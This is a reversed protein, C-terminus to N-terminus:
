PTDETLIIKWNCTVTLPTGTGDWRMGDRPPFGPIWVIGDADTLIPVSSRLDAPIRRDSFLTKVRRTMGSFRYLDGNKRARIQLADKMKDFNLSVSISKKYINEEDEGASEPNEGSDGGQSVGPRFVVVCLENEFRDGDSPYCFPPFEEPEKPVGVTVASPGIRCEVGGPLSIRRIGEEKALALVTNIHGEEPVLGGADAALIRLVRSAVADDLAAFRERTIGGDLLEAKALAELAEDDRRALASMRLVADEPYPFIKRIEPLVGLRLANRTCDAVANTRDEVYPVAHERCWARVAESSDGILPRLIRGGRIPPIGGLGHTGSGRFLNALVTELHDTANHATVIVAGSSEGAIEEAVEDFFAYRIGRACEEIGLGREKALSPVDARKVYLPVDREECMRRCFAEDRDAEDGRIGHNVHAAALFVGNERCWDALLVLLCTSDAGGSYGLVVHGARRMVGDMGFRVLTNPFMLKTM